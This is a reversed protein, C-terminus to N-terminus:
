SILCLNLLALAVNWSQQQGVIIILLAMVGFFAFNRPTDALPKFGVLKPALARVLLIFCLASLVSIVTTNTDFSIM